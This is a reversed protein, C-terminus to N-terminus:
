KKYGKERYNEEALARAKEANCTKCTAAFNGRSLWSFFEETNDYVKNCSTCVKKPKAETIEKKKQEELRKIKRLKTCAKCASEVGLARSRAKTFLELPLEQKCVSCIKHGEKTIRTITPNYRTLGRSKAKKIVACPTRDIEKAIEEVTYSLDEYVRDIFELEQDSWRSSNHRRARKKVKEM